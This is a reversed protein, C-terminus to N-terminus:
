DGRLIEEMGIWFKHCRTCEVYHISENYGAEIEEYPSSFWTSWFGNVLWRVDHRCLRQKLKRKWWWMM